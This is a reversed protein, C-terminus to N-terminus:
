VSVLSNLRCFCRQIVGNIDPLLMSREVSKTVSLGDYVFKRVNHKIWAFVNEIPNFDPQYPPIFLPTWQRRQFVERVILSKHFSVNDLIIHSGEPLTLSEMFAAFSVSNYSSQQQRSTIEGTKGIIALTSVNKWGGSSRKHHLRTGKISYGYLPLTKESCGMEDVAFLLSPSIGLPFGKKFEKAKEVSGSREIRIRSRKRSMNLSAILKSVRQRSVIVKHNDWIWRSVDTCTSFPKETLVVTVFETLTSAFASTSVRLKGPHLWNFLTGLSVDFLQAIMCYSKVKNFALLVASKFALPYM